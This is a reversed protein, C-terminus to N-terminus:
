KTRFTHPAPASGLVCLSLCAASFHPNLYEETPPPAKFINTVPQTHSVSVFMLAKGRGVLNFHLTVTM